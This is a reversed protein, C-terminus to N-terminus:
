DGDSQSKYLVSYFRPSPPALGIHGLKILVVPHQRGGERAAALAPLLGGGERGVPIPSRYQRVMLYSLINIKEEGITIICLTAFHM